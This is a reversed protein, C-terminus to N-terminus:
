SETLVQRYILNLAERAEVVEKAPTSSTAIRHFCGLRLILIARAISLAKEQSFGTIRLINGSMFDLWHKEYKKITVGIPTSTGRFRFYLKIILPEDKNKQFALEQGEQLLTRLDELTKVELTTNTKTFYSGFVEAAINVLDEKEKGMYEYIWARSVKSLRAIRSHSLKESGGKEIIELIARSVAFYKNSKKYSLDM